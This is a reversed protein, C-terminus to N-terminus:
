QRWVSVVSDPVETTNGGVFREETANACDPTVTLRSHNGQAGPVAANGWNAYFVGSRGYHFVGNGDYGLVGCGIGIEILGMPSMDSIYTSCGGPGWLDGNLTTRCAAPFDAAARAVEIPIDPPLDPECPPSIRNLRMEDTCVMGSDVGLDPMTGLDEGGDGPPVNADPMDVDADAMPGADPIPQGSDDHGGGPGCASLLLLTLAAVHGGGLILHRKTIEM